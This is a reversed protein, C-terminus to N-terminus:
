GSHAALPPHQNQTQVPEFPSSSGGGSGGAGFSAMAAVMNHHAAADTAPPPDGILMGFDYGGAASETISLSIDLQLSTGSLAGFDGAGGLDIAAASDFEEAREALLGGEGPRGAFEIQGVRQRAVRVMIGTRDGADRQAIEAVDDHQVVHVEHEIVSRGSVVRRRM